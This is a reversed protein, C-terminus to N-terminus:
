KERFCSIIEVIYVTNNVFDRGWYFPDSKDCDIVINSGTSTTIVPSSWKMEHSANYINLTGIDRGAGNCNGLWHGSPLAWKFKKMKTSTNTPVGNVDVFYFYNGSSGNHVNILRGKWSALAGGAKSDVYGKTVLDNSETGEKALKVKHDFKFWGNGNQAHFTLAGYAGQANYKKNSMLIQAAEATGNVWGEVLVKGMQGDTVNKAILEPTELSGTMTDGSKKVLDSGGAKSDVYGKTVLHGDQTGEELLTVGRGENKPGLKDVQVGGNFKTFEDEVYIRDTTTGLRLASNNETFIGLTKIRSTGRSDGSHAKIALPGEMIDGGKVNVFRDDLEELGIDQESIQYYRVELQTDIAFDDGSKRKLAVNAQLMNTTAELMETVVYLIYQQPDDINVLEMYDGPDIDSLQHTVGNLDEDHMTVANTPSDMDGVISLEGPKRPPGVNIDGIYKWKGSDHKLLITNLALALEDIERQLEEDGATIAEDLTVDRWFLEDLSKVVGANVVAQKAHDENHTKNLADDRAIATRDVEELQVKTAFGSLDAEEGSESLWKEGDYVYRVGTEDVTFDDGETWPQEPLQIM